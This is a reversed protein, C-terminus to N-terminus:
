SVTESSMKLILQEYMQKIRNLYPEPIEGIWKDKIVGDEILIATPYADVMYKLLLKDMLVLPFRVMQEDEFDELNETKSSMIGLVHPLDKQTNMMNLFPIWRKCYPCDQSLFVVFHSDKTLDQSYHKLWRKKWRNGIKLRSLDILPKDQSKWAMLSATIGVFLPLVWQWTATHHESPLYVWGIALLTIYGLNLLISQKPTVVLLDGYCGCDETKGTSTSWGTLASLAILLIISFPILYQPFANTILGIGLTAELGIFTIAIKPIIQPYLLRYRYIHYIFQQSSFSKIIATGLFVLGIIFRLFYNFFLM